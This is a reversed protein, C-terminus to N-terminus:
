HKKLIFHVRGSNPNAKQFSFDDLMNILNFSTQNVIINKIQQLDFIKQQHIEEFISNNTYVRIYNIQTAHKTDFESIRSYAIKKAIVENEQYNQFYEKCYSNTVVDFIFIGPTKLKKYISQFSNTLTGENPLYNMTDFLCLMINYENEPIEFLLPLASTTFNIHPLKKQAINIMENSSDCGNLDYDYKQMRKLLEATGCGIDLLTGNKFNQKRLISHIYKAWNKYNVHAMMEDYVKAIITYPPTFIKKPNSINEVSM